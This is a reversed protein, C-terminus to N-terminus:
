NAQDRLTREQARLTDIQRDIQSSYTSFEPDARQRELLSIAQQLYRLQVGRLQKDLYNLKEQLGSIEQQIRSLAQPDSLKSQAEAQARMIESYTEKSETEIENQSKSLERKLDDMQSQYWASLSKLNKKNESDQREFSVPSIRDSAGKMSECTGGFSLGDAIGRPECVFNIPLAFSIGQEGLSTLSNIGIVELNENIMPGGSNGRNIAADTQIFPIGNIPRGVYSIIGRTVTFSLGGPNGIALVMQGPYAQNADGLKLFSADNISIRLISLDLNKDERVKEAEFKRGDRLIVIPQDMSSTVHANSVIYGDSSILFGSGLSSNDRIFVTSNLAYEIKERDLSSPGEHTESKKAFDKYEKLAGPSSPQEISIQIQPRETPFSKAEESQKQLYFYTIFSGSLFLLFLLLWRHSSSERIPEVSVFNSPLGGQLQDQLAFEVLANQINQKQAFSLDWALTLPTKNLEERASSYHSLPLHKLDKKDLGAWKRIFIHALKDDFVRNSIVSYLVHRKCHKCLKAEPSIKEACYPCAVM